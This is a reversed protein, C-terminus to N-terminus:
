WDWGNVGEGAQQEGQNISAIEGPHADQKELIRKKVLEADM